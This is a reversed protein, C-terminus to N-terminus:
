KKQEQKPAEKKVEQKPAEKKPEQKPAEKKVEQKPAEKKPEQKPAEKKREKKPIAKLPNNGPKPMPLINVEGLIRSVRVTPRAGKSLWHKVREAELKIREKKEKPLLPNFSGLKEIFRGDRPFRSDAVVIKYVPRKKVGGM